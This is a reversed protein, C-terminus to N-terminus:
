SELTCLSVFASFDIYLYESGAGSNEINHFLFNKHSSWWCSSWIQAQSCWESMLVWMCMRPSKTWVYWRPWMLRKWLSLRNRICKKRRFISSPFRKWFSYCTKNVQRRIVLCGAHRLPILTKIGQYEPASVGFRHILVPQKVAVGPKEFCPFYQISMKIPNSHALTHTLTHTPPPNQIVSWVLRNIQTQLFVHQQQSHTQIM